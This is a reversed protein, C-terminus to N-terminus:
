QWCIYPKEGIKEELYKEVEPMGGIEDILGVEKATLGLVTSGDALSEVKEIPINRNKSVDEIFNKFIIKLDRMILDKEAQTLPKNPNGTDKFEGTTLPIYQYGDKLNKNTSDLYSGTVGISGVDSNRSAFIRGASSVAWYSASAGTQRILAVTPKTSNKLAIAIEEGAVPLGGPSDVDILIAKIKPNENAVKINDIVNESATIDYNFDPDNESHAPLYTMLTGHIGIGFVSCNENYNENKLDEFSTNQDVNFVASLLQFIFFFIIAFIVAKLVSKFLKSFHVYSVPKSFSKQKEKKPESTESVTKDLNIEDM